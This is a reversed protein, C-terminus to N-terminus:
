KREEKKRIWDIEKKIKKRQNKSVTKDQFLVQLEELSMDLFNCIIYM